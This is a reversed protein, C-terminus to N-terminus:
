NKRFYKEGKINFVNEICKRKLANKMMLKFADKQANEQQPISTGDTAKIVYEKDNIIMKIKQKTSCKIDIHTTKNYQALSIVAYFSQANVFVPDSYWLWCKTLCLDDDRLIKCIPIITEKNTLSFKVLAKNKINTIILTEDKKEIKEFISRLQQLYGYAIRFSFSNEDSPVYSDNNVLYIAKSDFSEIIIPTSITQKRYSHMDLVYKKGGITLKKCHCSILSNMDHCFEEFHVDKENQFKIELDNNIDSMGVVMFRKPDQSVMLYETYIYWLLTSPCPAKSRFFDFNIQKLDHLKSAAFRFDFMYRPPCSDIETGDQIFNLLRKLAKEKTEKNEDKFIDPEGNSNPLMKKKSLCKRYKELDTEEIYMHVLLKRIQAFIDSDVSTRDAPKSVYKQPMTTLTLKTLKSLAKKNKNDPFNQVIHKWVKEETDKLPYQNCHSGKVPGSLIVKFVQSMFNTVQVKSGRRMAIFMPANHLPTGLEFCHVLAQKASPTNMKYLDGVKEYSTLMELPINGGQLKQRMNLIENLFQKMGDNDNALAIERKREHIINDVHLERSTFMFLHYAFMLLGKLDKQYIMKFLLIQSAKKILTADAKKGSIGAVHLTMAYDKPLIKYGIYCKKALIFISPFIKEICLKSPHPYLPKLNKEKSGNNALDVFEQAKLYVKEVIQKVNCPSALNLAKCMASFNVTDKKSMVTLFVSDTDGTVVSYGYMNHALDAVKAIDSRAVQTVSGGVCPNIKMIVGYVSNATVKVAQERAKNKKVEAVNTESEIFDKYMQRKQKLTHSISSCYGRFYSDTAYYMIKHVIKKETTFKCSNPYEDCKYKNGKVHVLCSGVNTELINPITIKIYDKFEILKNEIIFDLTLISSLCINHAMMCSVYQSAFDLVLEWSDFWGENQVSRGGCAGLSLFDIEDSMTKNFENTESISYKSTDCLVIDDLYGHKTFLSCATKVAERCLLERIQLGTEISMAANFLMIGKAKALMYLLVVDRMCYGILLILDELKGSKWTKCLNEYSVKENHVKSVGFTEYCVDDLKCGRNPDGVSLMMDAIIITNMNIGMIDRCTTLFSASSFKSSFDTKCSHINEIDDEDPWVESLGNLNSIMLPDIEHSEHELEGKAPRSKKKLKKQRYKIHGPDYRETFELQYFYKPQKQFLPSKKRLRLLRNELFPLDFKNCNFGTIFDVYNKKIYSMFSEILKLENEFVNVHVNQESNANFNFKTGSKTDELGTFCIELIQKSSQTLQHHLYQKNRIEDSLRIFVQYDHIPMDGEHNFLISTICTVTEEKQVHCEFDTEIDFSLCTLSKALSLHKSEKKATRELINDSSNKHHYWSQKLKRRLRGQIIILDNFINQIDTNSPKGINLKDFWSFIISDFRDDEEDLINRFGKKGIKFIRHLFIEKVKKWSWKATLNHSSYKNIYEKYLLNFIAKSYNSIVSTKTLIPNVIDAYIKDFFSKSEMETMDYVLYNDLCVDKYFVHGDNDDTYCISNNLLLEGCSYADQRTMWLNYPTSMKDFIESHFVAHNKLYKSLNSWPVFNGAYLKLFFRQGMCAREMPTKHVLKADVIDLNLQNRLQMIFNFIDSKRWNIQCTEKFMLYVTKRLGHTHLFLRHGKEDKCQLVVPLPFLKSPNSVIAGSLHQKQEICKKLIQSSQFDVSHHWKNPVYTNFYHLVTTMIGIDNLPFLRIHKPLLYM